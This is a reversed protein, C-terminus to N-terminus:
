RTARQGQVGNTRGHLQWRFDRFPIALADCLSCLVVYAVRREERELFGAFLGKENNIKRRMNAPVELVHLTGSADGASVAASFLHVPFVVRAQLRKQQAINEGLQQNGKASKAQVAFEISCIGGAASSVQAPLHPPFLAPRLAPQRQSIDVGRPEERAFGL